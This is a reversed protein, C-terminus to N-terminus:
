MRVKFITGCGNGSCGTNGGQYTTGYLWHGKQVLPGQADSGDTGGLFSYLVTESGSPTISFVTGKGQTGGGVTTGYLTGHVAILNAGPLNGDPIDQFNYLTQLGSKGFSFFTGSSKNGGGETTGYLTGHLVTLGNPFAGDTTGGFRYLVSEKGSAPDISFLTGCGSGGCGSGGGQLTAGYLKGHLPTLGAFVRYGDTGGQFRYLVSESGSASVAFVTGCGNGGCGSGGGIVTTGYLTGNQEVVPAEPDEADTGGQFAYIKHEAGSPTVSFVTGHDGPGGGGSTTGYMTGNVGILTDFPWSGDGANNYNGQFNYTISETGSDSVQFITGCGLYCFNNQCSATCYNKSGNLTTGYLVGNLLTLGSLPSAGDPTGGFVYLEKYTSKAPRLAFPLQPGHMTMAPVRLPPGSAVNVSAEATALGAICSSACAFAAVLLMHFVRTSRM